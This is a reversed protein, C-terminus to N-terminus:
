KSFYGSWPYVWEPVFEYIIVEDSMNVSFMGVDSDVTDIVDLDVQIYESVEESTPYRYCTFYVILYILGSIALVAFLSSMWLTAKAMLPKMSEPIETM